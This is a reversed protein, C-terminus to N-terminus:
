EVLVSPEILFDVVGEAVFDHESVVRFMTADTLRQLVMWEGDRNAVVSANLFYVAPLLLCRFQFQVTVTRGAAVLPIAHVWDSTGSGGLRFGEVTKIGMVFRVMRAEEHFRVRFAYIYEGRRNLLNVQRGDLTTIRPPEIEAGGCGVEVTSKPLMRPDFSESAPPQAPDPQDEGIGAQPENLALIQDLIATRRDVPAYILRHYWSVATKPVGDYLLQGNDLLLARNCIQMVMDISHSVFLITGGQEQIQQIRAFCKRQFAEDGVALAEDVILIDPDTSSAVAFALRVYMGSSYTKVPQDLFRGIDAFAVIRDFRAETEQRSMGLIAANLYINERGSFEPNFGAGLELLAAVRGKVQVSGASASLTGVLIQLLTSKGSGNRGIVGVTEGRAIQFSVGDLATFERYYRHRHRRLVQMLRHEPKDYIRYVKSVDTARIMPEYSM